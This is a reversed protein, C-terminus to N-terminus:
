FLIWYSFYFAMALWSLSWQFFNYVKTSKAAVKKKKEQKKLLPGQIQM